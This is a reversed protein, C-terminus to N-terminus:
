SNLRIYKKLLDLGEEETIKAQRIQDALSRLLEVNLEKKSPIKNNNIFHYYCVAEVFEQLACSYIGNCLKPYNKGLRLLISKRKYIEDLYKKATGSDNRHLAYILKKSIRIISISLQIIKERQSDQKDM